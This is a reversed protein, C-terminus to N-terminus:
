NSVNATVSFPCLIEFGRVIGWNMTYSGASPPVVADIAFTLVGGPAVDVPVDRRVEEKRKLMNTGDIYAIDFDSASWVTNSDNRISFRFDTEEGPRFRDGWSPFINIMTCTGTGSVPQQVTPYQVQGSDSGGRVNVKVWIANNTGSSTGFVVGSANRMKWFGQYTGNVNPTAMNISIEIADNPGVNRPLNVALPAALQHGSDFVFQYATTWTCTGTNQIKWVKQFSQNPGLTTDDPVTIDSVFSMQDCPRQVPQVYSITPIRPIATPPVAPILTATPVLVIPRITTPTAQGVLPVISGSNQSGSNVLAAVTQQAWLQVQEASITPASPKAATTCGSLILILILIAITKVKM